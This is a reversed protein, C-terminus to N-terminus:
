DKEVYGQERDYARAAPDRSAPDGYGGGGAAEILMTEGAEMEVRTTIPMEREDNRGPNLVFRSGRGPRGGAVGRPPRQARDGRFIVM